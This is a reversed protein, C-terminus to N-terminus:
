FHTAEASLWGRLETMEISKHLRGEPRRPYSDGLYSLPLRGLDRLVYKPYLLM